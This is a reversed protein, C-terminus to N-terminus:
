GKGSEAGQRGCQRHQVRIRRHSWLDHGAQNRRWGDLSFCRPHHDRGYNDKTLKGQSYCTRGFEGGWIVLTDDLMGRRKLDQILAASPQDTEKAQNRIAKPLNDHQDWGQHYLQIFRVGREALRRALLCNAAYTGPKRSDPGYLEFSSRAGELPRNRRARQNADPIGNRIPRHAIRDGSRAGKRIAAPELESMKDLLARRGTGCPGDPNSMYLIPEKGSASNCARTVPTWSVRQGLPASYLPQDSKDPTVLVMFAPLNKNISGLGYHVWSGFSPRGAIQSGTQFFTIAPDHNIAETYMSRIVCLEDAVAATYPLLESFWAGSSARATPIQFHSGALPISSQQASMGTLRQSGRVGRAITRRQLKNLLPKYDFLDMQSPAGSQFLYIIRRAKPAFNPFGPLGGIAKQVPEAASCARPLLGALAMAGLGSATRPFFHRRTIGFPDLLPTQPSDMFNVKELGNCRSEPHNPGTRDHGRTRGPGVCPRGKRDGVALLKTARDPEKAFLNQQEDLLECMLTMEQPDPERGTLRRFVFRVREDPARGGQKLTMEALVRAAEVFQPDNLLVFGQQPTGTNSRKVVCVERSPADFAAMNPMPATRKWVTYLSRRYLSAGVSQHYAPSMSNSERWLDGPMYPSVPPGGLGEELLGSAALATDRIMEAPLRQSPGRALLLNEPDKERLEPRLTSNQRYTASLVIKKLLAKMNWGSTVFDRALWDLLEPHTPEAGQYGFNESTAVIGRNFLMQWFRNVAM